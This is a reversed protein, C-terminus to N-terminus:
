VKMAELIDILLGHRSAIFQLARQAVVLDLFVLLVGMKFFRESNENEPWDITELRM